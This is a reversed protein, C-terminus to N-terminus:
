ALYYLLLDNHYRMGLDTPKITHHNIRLLKQAIPKQSQNILQKLPLGTRESFLATPVGQQLRMSNLMFEIIKDQASLKKTQVPRYGGEAMYDRPKRTKQYRWITQTEPSGLKSHAGAGIGLYDGFQWYNLNHRSYSGPKAFASIEYHEYGQNQLQDASTDTFEAISEQDAIGQPYHSYFVSNPEINLQYHSIHEPQYYFAEHLDRLMQRKTQQPVAYILDFNINNFGALRAAAIALHNDRASHERGLCKLSHDSFSQIGLSLRNIGADIFGQFQTKQRHNVEGNGPNAEITIEINSSLSILKEIGRILKAYFSVSLLNPTGGGIFISSLPRPPIAHQEIFRLQSSLDALLVSLYSAEPLTVSRTHNVHVNFDCYPCKKNCWPVHVYLSLPSQQM